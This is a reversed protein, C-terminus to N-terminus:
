KNKLAKEHIETIKMPKRLHTHKYPGENINTSNCRNTQSNM